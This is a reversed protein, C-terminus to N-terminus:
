SHPGGPWCCPRRKGEKPGVGPRDRNAPGPGSTSGPECVVNLVPTLRDAPSPIKKM